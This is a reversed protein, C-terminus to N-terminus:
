KFILRMAFIECGLKSRWMMKALQLLLMRECSGEDSTAKFLVRTKLNIPKLDYISQAIDNTRFEHVQDNFELTVNYKFTQVAPEVTIEVPDVAPVEKVVVKKPRPM